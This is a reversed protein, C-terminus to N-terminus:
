VQITKLAKTKIKYLNIIKTKNIIKIRKLHFQKIMILNKFLPKIQNNTILVKNLIKTRAIIM